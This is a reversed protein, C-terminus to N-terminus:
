MFMGLPVRFLSQVGERIARWKVLEDPRYSDCSFDRLFPMSCSLDRFGREVCRVDHEYCGQHYCCDGCVFWWCNQCGVGCMGLCDHRVPCARCAYLHRSAPDQEFLHRLKPCVPIEERDVSGADGRERGGGRVEWPDGSRAPSKSISEAFPLNPSCTTGRFWGEDRSGVVERGVEVTDNDASERGLGRVPSKSIGDSSSRAPKSATQGFVSGPVSFPADQGNSSSSEARIKMMTQLHQVYVYLDMAAPYKYGLVGENGLAHCAEIVLHFEPSQVLEKFVTDITANLTETHLYCDYEAPVRHQQLAKDFNGSVESPLPFFVTTQQNVAETPTALPTTGPLWRGFFSYQGMFRLLASFAITSHRRYLIETGDLSSIILLSGKRSVLSTILIGVEAGDSSDRYVVSLEEGSLSHIQLSGCSDSRTTTDALATLGLLQSSFM